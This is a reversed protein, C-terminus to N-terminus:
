YYMNKWTAPTAESDYKMNSLYLKFQDFHQAVKQQNRRQAHQIQYTVDSFKNTTKYPGTCQHHLKCKGVRSCNLATM